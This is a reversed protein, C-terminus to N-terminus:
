ADRVVRETFGSLRSLQRITAGMEKCTHLIENRREKTYLQLDTPHRLSYKDALYEVLDEDTLSGRRKDFDLVQAMKPLPANVLEILDEIPIRRLVSSVACIRSKLISRDIYEGWSSWVYDEVRQCLGGAVPNQHVYRLLTIFYAEDNVPESKFRDQFLHGCREHKKNYYLAYATALRKIIESLPSGKEQVILHVHNPMLCYAYFSCRPPLPKGLDDTPYVSQYLLGVFKRYDGIQEFIVQKNIGRLMVHYIGTTSKSRLPRAMINCKQILAAFNLMKM